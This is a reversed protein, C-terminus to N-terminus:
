VNLFDVDMMPHVAKKNKNRKSDKRYEVKSVDEGEKKKGGKVQMPTSKSSMETFQVVDSFCITVSSYSEPEVFTGQM